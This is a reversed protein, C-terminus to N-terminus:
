FCTLRAIGLSRFSGTKERSLEASSLNSPVPLHLSTLMWKYLLHSVSIVYKVIESEFEPVPLVEKGTVPDVCPVIDFAALVNAM